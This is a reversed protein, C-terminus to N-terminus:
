TASSLVDEVYETTFVPLVKFIVTLHLSPLFHLDQISEMTPAVSRLSMRTLVFCNNLFKILTMQSNRAETRHTADTDPLM